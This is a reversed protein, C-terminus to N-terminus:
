KIPHGAAATYALESFHGLRLAKQNADLTTDARVVSCYAATLGNVLDARRAAPAAAHARAVLDGARQPMDGETVGALEQGLPSDASLARALPAPAVAPCAQSPGANMATRTTARLQAVMGPVATPPAANSWTQRVYNTVDAVEADSMGAGIALMPALTGRAPLGGLVVNVVNQPGKAMVQVSHDLAPVVGAIGEGNAGHCSACFNLYAAGGRANSGAFLALKRDGDSKAPTTKLYTAIALLDADSLHSLSHVTEAM